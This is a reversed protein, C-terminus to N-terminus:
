ISDALKALSTPKLANQRLCTRRLIRQKLLLPYQQQQLQM